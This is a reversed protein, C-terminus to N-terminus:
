REDVVGGAAPQVDSQRQRPHRDPRALRLRGRRDEARERQEFRDVFRQMVNEIAVGDHKRDQPSAMVRFARSISVSSSVAKAATGSYTVCAMPQIGIAAKWANMAAIITRTASPLPGSSIGARTIRQNAIAYM